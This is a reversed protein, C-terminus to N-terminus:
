EKEGAILGIRKNLRDYLTEFDIKGTYYEDLEEFVIDEFSDEVRERPISEEMLKDFAIKTAEVDINAYKFM